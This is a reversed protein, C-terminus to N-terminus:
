SSLGTCLCLVKTWAAFANFYRKMFFVWIGSCALWIQNFLNPLLREPNEWYIWVKTLSQSCCTLTSVLHCFLHMRVCGYVRGGWLCRWHKWTWSEKHLYYLSHTFCVRCKRLVTSPYSLEHISPCTCSKASSFAVPGMNLKM